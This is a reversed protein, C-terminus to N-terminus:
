FRGSNMISYTMTFSLLKTSHRVPPSTLAWTLRVASRPPFFPVKLPPLSFFSFSFLLTKTRFQEVHKTLINKKYICVCSNIFALSTCFKWRPIFILLYIYLVIVWHDSSVLGLWGIGNKLMSEESGWGCENGSNSLKTSPHRLLFSFSSSLTGPFRSTETWDQTKQLHLCPTPRPVCM